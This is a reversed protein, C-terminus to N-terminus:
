FIKSLKNSPVLVIPGDYHCKEYTSLFAEFFEDSSNLKQVSVAIFGLMSFGNVDVSITAEERKSIQSFAFDYSENGPNIKYGFEDWAKWNTWLFLGLQQKKKADNVIDRLLKETM